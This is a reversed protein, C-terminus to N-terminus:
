WDTCVGWKRYVLDRGGSKLSQIANHYLEESWQIGGSSPSVLLPRFMYSASVNTYVSVGQVNCFMTTNEVAMDICILHVHRKNLFERVCAM